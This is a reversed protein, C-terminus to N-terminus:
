PNRKKLVYWTVLPYTNVFFPSTTLLYVIFIDCYWYYITNTGLSWRLKSNIHCWCFKCVQMGQGQYFAMNFGDPRQRPGKGFGVTPDQGFYGQRNMDPRNQYGYQAFDPNQPGMRANMQAQQNVQQQGMNGMGMSAMQAQNGYFDQIFIFTLM